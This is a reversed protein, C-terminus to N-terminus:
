RLCSQRGAPFPLPQVLGPDRAAHYSSRSAHLVASPRAAEPADGDREHRAQRERLVARSGVFLLM